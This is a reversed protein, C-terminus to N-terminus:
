SQQFLTLVDNCGIAYRAMANRFDQEMYRPGQGIHAWYANEAQMGAIEANLMAAQSMIYAAKQEPSM